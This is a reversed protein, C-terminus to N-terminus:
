GAGAGERGLSSVGARRIIGLLIETRRRRQRARAVRLPRVCFPILQHRHNCILSPLRDVLSFSPVRRTESRTSPLSPDSERRPHAPDAALFPLPNRGGWQLSRSPSVPGLHRPSLKKGEGRITGMEGSAHSTLACSSM